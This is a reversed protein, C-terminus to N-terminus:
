AVACVAQSEGTNALAREISAFLASIEVPKAIHGDMGMAMYQAVQDSMANATLALIPTRRGGRQQELERIRRTAGPGDMEPMHVDMLIVDWDERQWAQVAALGDGVIVPQIGAQNLLTKLVLQNTPNDEAALIRVPRDLANSM